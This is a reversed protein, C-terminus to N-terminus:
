KTDEGNHDRITHKEGFDLFVYGAAGLTEALIFCTGNDRCRKNFKTIEDIGAFNETIVVCSFKKGEMDMPDTEAISSKV